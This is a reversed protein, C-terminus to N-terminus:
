QNQLASDMAVSDNASTTVTKAPTQQEIRIQMRKDLKKKYIFNIALIGVVVLIFMGLLLKNSTKM